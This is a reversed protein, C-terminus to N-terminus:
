EAEQSRFVEYPKGPECTALTLTKSNYHLEYVLASRGDVLWRRINRATLSAVLFNIDVVSRFTCPLQAAEEDTFLNNKFDTTADVDTPEFAFLQAEHGGIRHDCVLGVSPKMYTANFIEERVAMSDAGMIVIGDLTQGEWKCPHTILDTDAVKQIIDELAEVKLKGEHELGYAQGSTNVKEVVDHDWVHIEPMGMKALAIADFSGTAGVGIIHVRTSVEQPNFIDLQRQFIEGSDLDNREKM